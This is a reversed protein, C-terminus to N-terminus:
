PTAEVIFYNYVGNDTVAGGTVTFGTGPTTTAPAPNNTRAGNVTKITIGSICSNATVSTNAVTAAGNTLTFTGSKGNTGQKINVTQGITNFFLGGDFRVNGDDVWLAWPTGGTVNTGRSPANQIYVNPFDTFTTANTAAFTPTSFSHAVATAVTGSSSTDTITSSAHSTIAGTTGWAAQAGTTPTHVLAGYNGIVLRAGVGTSGNATTLIRFESGAAGTTFDQTAFVRLDAGGVFGSGSYGRVGWTGLQNGSTTATPSGATGNTSNFFMGSNQGYNYLFIRANAGDKGDIRFENDTIAGSPLSALPLANFNLHLASSTGSPVLTISKNSAGAHMDITGASNLQFGDPTSFVTSALTFGTPSDKLLKGTTGDWLAFGSSTASAPGVVDGASGNSAATIRGTADVTLSALTYSGPTVATTPLDATVISRFTPAGSSGSAPGAFVLNSAANSLAFTLAPTTTSTAVSTTFLPSLNGASFSTVSGAATAAYTPDAGPGGSVLAYGSTGPALQAWGSAGRYLLSGRTSGILDLATSVQAVTATAAGTSNGALVGTQSVGNLQINANNIPTTVALAPLSLLLFAILKKM